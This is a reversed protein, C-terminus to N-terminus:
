SIRVLDLPIEKKKKKKKLDGFMAKLDDEEKKEGDDLGEGASENQKMREHATLAGMDVVDGNATVKDIEAAIQLALERTPSIILIAIQGKALPADTLLSQLAPLAFAITKGTGTKAQVLCDTRYSPLDDIVKQQVPTMYDYKM